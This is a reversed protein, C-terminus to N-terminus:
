GWCGWLGFLIGVDWLKLTGRIVELMEADGGANKMDWGRQIEVDWGNLMGQIVELM